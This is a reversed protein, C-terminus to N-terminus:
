SLRRTAAKHIAMALLALRSRSLEIVNGVSSPPHYGLFYGHNDGTLTFTAGGCNTFERPETYADSCDGAALLLERQLQGPLRVVVEVRRMNVDLLSLGVAQQNGDRKALVSDSAATWPDTSVAELWKALDCLVESDLEQKHRQKDNITLTLREGDHDLMLRARNDLALCFAGQQQWNRAASTVGTTAWHLEREGHLRCVVGDQNRFTLWDLGAVIELHHSCWRVLPNITLNDGSNM